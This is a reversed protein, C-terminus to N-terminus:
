LNVGLFVPKAYRYIYHQENEGVIFVDGDFTHKLMSGSMLYYQTHKKLTNAYPSWSFGGRRIINYYAGDLANEMEEPKPLSSTLLMYNNKDTGINEKIFAAYKNEDTITQLVFKGFGRSVQGGIGSIGISKLLEIVADADEQSEYGIMGYLGCNEEFECCGVEFPVTDEKGNNVFAKIDTRFVAFSKTIGEIDFMNGSKIYGSFNRFYEDSAPLWHVAKIAKRNKVDFEANEDLPFLPVPLYLVEKHFPFTDSFCLKGSSCLAILEDVATEGIQLAAENCLASFITDARLTMATNTLSVAGDGRGCHLPTTFHLKYLCYNM